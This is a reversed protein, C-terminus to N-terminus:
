HCTLSLHQWHFHGSGGAPCLASYSFLCMCDVSLTSPNFLATTLYEGLHFFALASVYLGWWTLSTFCTLCVGTAISAGLFAACAATQGKEGLLYWYRSMDKM